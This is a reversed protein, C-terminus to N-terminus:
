RSLVLYNSRSWTKNTLFPSFGIFSETEPSLPAGDWQTMWSWLSTNKFWRLFYLHAMIISMFQITQFTGSFNRVPISRQEYGNFDQAFASNCNLSPFPGCWRFYFREAFTILFVLLLYCLLIETKCNANLRLETIVNSRLQLTAVIKYGILACVQRRFPNRWCFLHQQIQYYSSPGMVLLLVQLSSFSTCVLSLAHFTILRRYNSFEM